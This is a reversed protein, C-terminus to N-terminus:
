KSTGNAKVITQALRDITTNKAGSGSSSGFYYAAVQVWVTGLVGIMMYLVDVNAIPPTYFMLGILLGFFGGTVGLALLGPTRDKVEMERKRASDRDAAEVTALDRMVQLQLTQIALEAKARETPDTVFTKIVDAVGTFLNGGLIGLLKDWM